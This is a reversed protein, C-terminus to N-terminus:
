CMRTNLRMSLGRVRNSRNEGMVLCRGVISVICRFLVIAGSMVDEMHYTCCYHCIYMMVALNQPHDYKLGLHSILENM